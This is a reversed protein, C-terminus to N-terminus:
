SRYKGDPLVFRITIYMMLWHRRCLDLKILAKRISWIMLQWVLTFYLGAFASSNQPASGLNNWNIDSKHSIFM